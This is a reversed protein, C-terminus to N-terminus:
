NNPKVGCGQRSIILMAQETTFGALMLADFSNKYTQAVEHWFEKNANVDKLSRVLTNTLESIENMYKDHWLRLGKKQQHHM